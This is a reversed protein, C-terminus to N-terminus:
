FHRFGMYDKTSGAWKIGSGEVISGIVTHPVTIKKEEDPAATFLLEYDEGGCVALKQADWGEQTCIDRLEESLPLRLLDVEAGVGSANLIHRLDSAIGDSVDMMAHVGDFALLAMGEQVRPTPRYHRELLYENRELGNLIIQLGAASDGLTGTVCIKDGPKAASRLKAKGGPANGLVTVNICLRDPSSSTDGGLLPCNCLSSIDRFGDMFKRIWETELNEPLAFSLFSGVPAAGMAALDSLNVAASKWGLEGAKVDEMLFHTGEILMDTSVLMDMGTKQPIIACDDGIGYIGEPVKTGPTQSFKSRIEDILGFEGLESIVM